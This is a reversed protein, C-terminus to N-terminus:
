VQPKAEDWVSAMKVDEIKLPPRPKDIENTTINERTV